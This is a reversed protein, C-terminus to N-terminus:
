CSRQCARRSTTSARPLLLWSSPSIRVRPSSSGCVTVNSCGNRLPQTYRCPPGAPSMAVRLATLNQGSPAASDEGCGVVVLAASLLVALCRLAGRRM